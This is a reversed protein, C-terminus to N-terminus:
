SVSTKCVPCSGNSSLWRNVCGSHFGHLCPLSTRDDGKRFDELCISCQRKDEPLQRELDVIKISPLSSITTSSAGRRINESGDGYVELLQDYSMNDSHLRQPVRYINGLAATANGSPMGSAAHSIRNGGWGSGGFSSAHSSQQWPQRSSVGGGARGNQTAGNVLSPNIHHCADCRVHHQQNLLTCRPCAWIMQTDEEQRSATAAFPFNRNSDTFTEAHAQPQQQLVAGMSSGASFATSSATRDHSRSATTRFMQFPLSPSSSSSELRDVEGVGNFRRDSSHFLNSPPSSELTIIHDFGSFRSLTPQRRPLLPQSLHHDASLSSFSPSESTTTGSQAYLQQRPRPPPLEVSSVSSESMPDDLICDDDEADDEEEMDLRSGGFAAAATAAAAVNPLSREAWQRARERAEKKESSSMKRAPAPNLPSKESARRPRARARSSSSKKSPMKRPSISTLNEEAWRRARARAQQKDSSSMNGKKRAVPSLSPSSSIEVPLEMPTTPLPHRQLQGRRSPSLNSM